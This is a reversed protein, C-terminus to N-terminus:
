QNMLKDCRDKEASVRQIHDYAFFCASAGCTDKLNENQTWMISNEDLVDYRINQTGKGITNDILSVKANNGLLKCQLTDEGSISCDTWGFITSTGLGYACGSASISSKSLLNVLVPLPTAELSKSLWADPIAAYSVAYIYDKEGARDCRVFENNESTEAQEKLCYIYHQVTLDGSNAYGVPLNDTYSTYPFSLAGEGSMKVPVPKLPDDVTYWDDNNTSKIIECEMTKVMATHEAKFRNVVSAAKIESLTNDKDPRQSLNLFSLAVMVTALFIWIYM